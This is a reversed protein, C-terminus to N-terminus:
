RTLVLKRSESWGDLELRLLYVGSPLKTGLADRGDWRVSQRGAQRLGEVLVARERGAVDLVVVRVGSSMPLTFAIEGVEIFPNPRIPELLSGRLSQLEEGGTGATVGGTRLDAETSTHFPMGMWATHPFFPSDAAIRLRWHYLTESTLDTALESLLVSSGAGAM